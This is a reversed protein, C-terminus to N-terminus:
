EQIFHDIQFNKNLLPSFLYFHEKSHIKSFKIYTSGYKTVGNPDFTLHDFTLGQLCHITHTAVLQIPFQIITIIHFPNNGIQIEVVKHEIPIWNKDLRPIKEYM